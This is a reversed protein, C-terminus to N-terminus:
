PKLRKVVIHRMLQGTNSSLNVVVFLSLSITDTDSRDNADGEAVTNVVFVDPVPYKLIRLLFPGRQVLYARM